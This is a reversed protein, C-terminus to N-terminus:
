NDFLMKSTKVEFDLDKFRKAIIKVTYGKQKIYDLMEKFGMAGAVKGDVTVMFQYKGKYVLKDQLDYLGILVEIQYNEDFDFIHGSSTLLYLMGTDSFIVSNMKSEYIFQWEAPQDRLEDKPIYQKYWQASLNIACFGFILAIIFKKM